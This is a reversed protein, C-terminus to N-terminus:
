HICHRMRITEPQYGAVIPTFNSNFITMNTNILLTFILIKIVIDVALGGGEGYDVTIMQFGM